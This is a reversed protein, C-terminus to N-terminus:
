QDYMVCFGGPKIQVDLRTSFGVDYLKVDPSFSGRYCCVVQYTEAQFLFIVM